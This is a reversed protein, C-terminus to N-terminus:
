DRPPRWRVLMFSFTTGVGEESAFWIKGGMAEIETKVLYLSLGYGFEAIIQPQRARQFPTFVRGMEKQRIGYGTDVIDIQVSRAKSSPTARITVTTEPPSYMLSNRLLDRFIYRHLTFVM